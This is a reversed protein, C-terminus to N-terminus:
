KVYGVGYDLTQAVPATGHGIGDKGCVPEVVFCRSKFVDFRLKPRGTRSARMAAIGIRALNTAQGAFGSTRAQALAVGAPLRKRHPHTGNKLVAVERKAQPKLGDMQHAGALLANRGALKLAHKAAAQFGRPKERMANALGHFGMAAHEGFRHAASALGHFDILGIHAALRAGFGEQRNGLFLGNDSKDLAVALDAREMHGGNPGIGDAADHSPIDREFAVEHGILGLKIGIDAVVESRVASDGVTSPFINAAVHMGVRNLAIETNELAANVANVLVNRFGMQVPIQGFKVEPIVVPNRKAAIVVGARITRQFTGLALAKGILCSVAGLGLLGRWSSSGPM